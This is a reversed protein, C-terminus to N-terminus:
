ENLTDIIQSFLATVKILKEGHLKGGSTAICVGRETKSRIINHILIDGDDTQVINLANAPSYDSVFSAQKM